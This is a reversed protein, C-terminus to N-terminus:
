SSHNPTSHSPPVFLSLIHKMLNYIRISIPTVQAILIAYFFIYHLDLTVQMHPVHPHLLADRENALVTVFCFIRHRHKTSRNRNRLKCISTLNRKLITKKEILDQKPYNSYQKSPGFFYEYKLSALPRGVGMKRAKPMMISYTRQM